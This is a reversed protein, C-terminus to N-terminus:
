SVLFGTPRKTTVAHQPLKLAQPVAPGLTLGTRISVAVLGLLLAVLRMSIDGALETRKLFHM